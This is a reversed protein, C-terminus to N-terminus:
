GDRPPSPYPQWAVSPVSPVRYLIAQHGPKRLSARIIQDTAVRERASNALIGHGLPIRAFEAVGCAINDKRNIVDILM